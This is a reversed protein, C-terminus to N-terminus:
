ASAAGVAHRPEAALVDVVDVIGSVPDLAFVGIVFIAIFGPHPNGVRKDGIIADLTEDEHSSGIEVCVSVKPVVLEEAIGASIIKRAACAVVLDSESVLVMGRTIA